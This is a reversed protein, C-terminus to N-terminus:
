PVLVKTGPAEPRVDYTLGEVTDEVLQGISNYVYNNPAQTKLDDANTAATVADQVHNLQNTGTKYAYAFDDMANGNAFPVGFSACM